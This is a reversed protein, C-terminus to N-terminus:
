RLDPTSDFLRRHENLAYLDTMGAIFNRIRRFRDAECEAVPGDTPLWDPPLDAPHDCYRRFLDAVIDEADRMVKMVREARYMHGWLFAKIEAEAAATEPPFAVMARDAGRV